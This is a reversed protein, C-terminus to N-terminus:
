RVQGSVVVAIHCQRPGAPQQLIASAPGWTPAISPRPGSRTGSTPLIHRSPSRKPHETSIMKAVIRNQLLGGSLLSTANTHNAGDEVAQVGTAERGVEIERRRAFMAIRISNVILV